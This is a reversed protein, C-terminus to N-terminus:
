KIGETSSASYFNTISVHHFNNITDAQKKKTETTEETIKRKLSTASASARTTSQTEDYDEIIDATDEENLDHRYQRRVPEPRLTELQRREEAPSLPTM